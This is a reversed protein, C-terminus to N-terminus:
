ETRELLSRLFTVLDRVTDATHITKGMRLVTFQNGDEQIHCRAMQSLHVAYGFDQERPSLMSRHLYQFRAAM